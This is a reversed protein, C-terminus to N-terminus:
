FVEKSMLGERGDNPGNIWVGFFWVVIAIGDEITIACESRLEDNTEVVFVIVRLGDSLEGSLFVGVKNPILVAVDQEAQGARVCEVAVIPIVDEDTATATIAEITTVAVVVEVATM